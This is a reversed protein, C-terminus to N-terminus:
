PGVVRLANEFQITKNAIRDTITARVKYDGPTNLTVMDNLYFVAGQQNALEASDTEYTM